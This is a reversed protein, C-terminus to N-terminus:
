FIGVEHDLSKTSLGTPGNWSLNRRKKKFIYIGCHSMKEEGVYLMEMAELEMLSRVPLLWGVSALSTASRRPISSV